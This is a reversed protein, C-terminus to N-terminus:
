SANLAERIVAGALVQGAGSYVAAVQGPTPVPRPVPFSITLGEDDLTVHAAEPRQRYITQVLV